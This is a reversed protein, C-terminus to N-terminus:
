PPLSRGSPALAVVCHRTIRGSSRGITWALCRTVAARTARSWPFASLSAGDCPTPDAGGAPPGWTAQTPSLGPSRPGRWCRTKQSSCGSVPRRPPARPPRSPRLIYLMVSNTIPRPGTDHCLQLRWSLRYQRLRMTAAMEASATASAVSVALDTM